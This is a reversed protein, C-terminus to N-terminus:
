ANLKIMRRIDFTFISSFWLCLLLLILNKHVLSFGFIFKTVEELDVGSVVLVDNSWFESCFLISGMGGKM